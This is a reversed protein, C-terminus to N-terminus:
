NTTAPQEGSAPPEATMAPPPADSSQPVSGTSQPENTESSCAALAISAAFLGAATILVSKKM